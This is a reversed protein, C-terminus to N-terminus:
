NALQSPTWVLELQGSMYQDVAGGAVRADGPESRMDYFFRRIAFLGRLEVDDVRLGMGVDGEVGGASARPFWAESAIEGVALPALYAAHGFMFVGSGWDWRLGGGVRIAHIEIDPLDPPRQTEGPPHIRFVQARYGGDARLEVDDVRLRYRLGIGLSWLDTGFTAGGAGVSELGVALEGEARVSLGALPGLDVHGGPFWEAGLHAVPAAPLHYPVLAGFIDDHYTFSRNVVSFGVWVSLPAPSRPGEPSAERGPPAEAPRPRPSAAPRPPAVARASSPASPEESAVLDVLAGRAWRRVSRTLATPRRAAFREAGLERGDGSLVRVRARWLRGAREVQGEVRAGPADALRAAPARELAAVVERRVLSARPGTFDAVVVSAQASAAAAWGLAAVAALAALARM